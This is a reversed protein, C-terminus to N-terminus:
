LLAAGPVGAPKLSAEGERRLVRLQVVVQAQNAEPLAPPRVCTGHEPLRHIQVRSEGFGIVWQSLREALEAPRRFGPETEIEVAAPAGGFMVASRLGRTRLM